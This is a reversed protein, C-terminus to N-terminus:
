PLSQFRCPMRIPLHVSKKTAEYGNMVPMQIDMLIADYYGAPLSSSSRLQSKATKLRTTEVHAMSLFEQAVEQNFATDEM